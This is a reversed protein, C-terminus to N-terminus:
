VFWKMSMCWGNKGENMMDRGVGNNILKCVWCLIRVRMGWGFDEWKLMWWVWELM